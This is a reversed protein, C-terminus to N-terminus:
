AIRLPEQNWWSYNLLLNTGSVQKNRLGAMQYYLVM